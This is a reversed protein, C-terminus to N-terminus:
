SVEVAVLLVAAEFRRQDDVAARRRPQPDASCHDIIREIVGEALALDGRHVCRQILIM